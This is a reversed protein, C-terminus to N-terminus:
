EVHHGVLESKQMVKHPRQPIAIPGNDLWNFKVIGVNPKIFKELTGM